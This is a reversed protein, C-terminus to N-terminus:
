AALRIRKDKKLADMDEMPIYTKRPSKQWANPFLGDKLWQRITKPTVGFETAAQTPTVDFELGLADRIFPKIEKAMKKTNVM